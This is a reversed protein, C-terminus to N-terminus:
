SLIPPSVLTYDLSNVLKFKNNKLFEFTAQQAKQLMINFSAALRTPSRVSQQLSNCFRIFPQFETSNKPAKLRDIAKITNSASELCQFRMLHRLYGLKETILGCNIRKPTIEKRMLFIAGLVRTWNTEISSQRRLISRHFHMKSHFPHLGYPTLIIRTADQLGFPM